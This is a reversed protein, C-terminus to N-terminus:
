CAGRDYEHIINQWSFTDLWSFPLRPIETNPPLNVNSASGATSIPRGGSFVQITANDCYNGGSVALLKSALFSYFSDTLGFVPATQSGLDPISILLNGAESAGFVGASLGVQLRKSGIVNLYPSIMHNNADFLSSFNPNQAVQPLPAQFFAGLLTPNGSGDSWPPAPDVCLGNGHQGNRAHNRAVPYGLLLRKGTGM